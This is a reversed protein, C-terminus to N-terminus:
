AAVFVWSLYNQREQLDGVGNGNGTYHNYAGLDGLRILKRMWSILFSSILQLFIAIYHIQSVKFNSFIFSSFPLFIQDPKPFPCPQEPLCCAM